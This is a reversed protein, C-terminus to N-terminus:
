RGRFRCRAAYDAPCDLSRLWDDAAGQVAPALAPGAAAELRELMADMGAAAGRHEAYFDAVVADVAEAGLLDAVEEYFCAGKMYPALSWLDSAEFDIRGCGEPFVVANTDDGECIPVLFDDVYLPWLDPGGVQELARATIYTTTGESLVFDEWCAIRVGDGFWGHAAEHVQAEENGFDWAAVHFFPHHEMGGWSDAGWDVQVTGAQPGFLYPGYTEEFFGFAATLHATGAQAADLAGDGPLYWASLSTGAPTSGLDIREYAGVAIGPMYPPGEGVTSTPYIAELGPAVGEVQMTVTVGDSPDPNCPFLNGCYTPWVFTVGLDPMWGDFTEFTRAPFHYDVVVSAVDRDTPVTLVGDAIAAEVEVDDVAVSIGTLGSADFWVSDSGEVRRVVVTARGTRQALDLLLDTSVIDQPAGESPPPASAPPLLPGCGALAVALLAPSRPLLAPM